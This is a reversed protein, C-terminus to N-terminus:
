LNKIFQVYVLLIVKMNHSCLWHMILMMILFSDDRLKMKSIPVWIRLGPEKKLTMRLWLTEFDYSARVPREFFFDPLFDKLLVLFLFCLLQVFVIVFIWIDFLLQFYQGLTSGLSIFMILWSESGLFVEFSVWLSSLYCFIKKSKSGNKEISESKRKKM